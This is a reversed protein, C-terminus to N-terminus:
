KGATRQRWEAAKDPKNWADYLRVIDAVVAKTTAHDRGLRKERAAGAALLLPEAEAFRKDAVLLNGLQRRGRAIEPHDDAPYAKLGITLAERYRREAADPSGAGNLADGLSLLPNVLEGHAAGLTQRLRATAESLSTVAAPYDKVVLKVTGINALTRAVTTHDDGLHKRRMALIEDLLRFTEDFRKTRLYVLGLNELTILVEPHEDGLLRRQVTLAERHLSEAAAYNEMRVQNVALDNLSVSLHVSDRGHSRRIDVAERLLTDARAYDASAGAVISALRKLSDAVQEDRPGLRRRRIALGQEAAAAAEQYQGRKQLIGALQTLSDAAAEHEPGNLAQRIELAERAATEAEAYRGQSEQVDALVGLTKAMEEDPVRASSRQTNLAASALREAEDWLGLGAYTVAITRRVAAADLPQNNFSQDIKASATALADRVTVNRDGGSWPDSSSLTDQLFTAISNARVAQSAARDREVALRQALVSLGITAAIMLSFVAIAVSVGARHRHVFKSVRDRASPPRAVVPQLELYRRLDMALANATEYRETRDKAIAKLTIWDLDGRIQNRLSTADCRRRAAITPALDGHSTVRSSPTPADTQRLLEPRSVARQLLEDSFPLAGALLEYLIIGLSYIDTRTDIDLSSMEMQEPSMYAPTGIRQGVETYLTLSTLKRDIAKAVGFDIVKPVARGDQLGVLVNSPKLDRHIVGKQHAHQVAHCVDSMLAVRQRTDLRHTDCYETIPVGHVLEMVFYPRGTDTAGADYVRAISPHDMVALAQREVEFRAIFQPTDMGLKLVKLAVRRNIPAPQEAVFVTGMGGEGLMQLIRYCGIRDPIAASASAGLSTTADRPEM